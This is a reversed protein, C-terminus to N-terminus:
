KGNRNAQLLTTRLLAERIADGLPTLLDGGRWAEVALGKARLAKMRGPCKMRSTLPTERAALLMRRQAATLGNLIAQQSQTLTDTM